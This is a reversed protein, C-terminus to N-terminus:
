RFSQLLSLSLQSSHPPPLLVSSSPPPPFLTSSRPRPFLLLTSSSPAVSVRCHVKQNEKSTEPLVQASYPLASPTLSSLQGCCHAAKRKKPWARKRKAKDKAGGEVAASTSLEQLDRPSCFLLFLVYGVVAAAWQSPSAERERNDARQHQECAREYQGGDDPSFVPEGM